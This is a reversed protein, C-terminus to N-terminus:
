FQQLKFLFRERYAITSSHKIGLALPVTPPLQQGKPLCSRPIYLSYTIPDDGPRAEMYKRSPRLLYLTFLADKCEHLWLRLQETRTGEGQRHRSESQDDGM